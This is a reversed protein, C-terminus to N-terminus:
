RHVQFYALAGLLFFVQLSERGMSISREATATKTTACHLESIGSPNIFLVTTVLNRSKCLIQSRYRNKPSVYVVVFLEEALGSIGKM